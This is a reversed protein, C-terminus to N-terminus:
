RDGRTPKEAAPSANVKPPRKEAFAKLGEKQDPSTSAIAYFAEALRLHSEFSLDLGSLTLEKQMRVAQSPNAAIREAMEHVKPMLEEASVVESVLGMRLAEDAGVFRGTLLIDMACSLGVIRPLRYTDIAGLLGWKVEPSGFQASSSAIRIDCILALELGGALAYGNVAAILPKSIPLGFDWRSGRWPSWTESYEDEGHYLRLDAGASFAKDGAGTIVGVRVEPDAEITLLAENIAAYTERDMANLVHPRNVTIQAVPGEREFIISM